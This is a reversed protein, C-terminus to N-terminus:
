VSPHDKVWTARCTLVPGITAEEQFPATREMVTWFGAFGESGRISGIFVRKEECQPVFRM